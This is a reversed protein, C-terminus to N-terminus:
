QRYMRGARVPPREGNRTSHLSTAERHRVRGWRGGAWPNSERSLWWGIAAETCRCLQYIRTIRVAM